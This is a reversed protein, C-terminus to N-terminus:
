STIKSLEDFAENSLEIASDKVEYWNSPTQLSNNILLLLTDDKTRKLYMNTGCYDYYYRQSRVSEIFLVEANLEESSLNINERYGLESKYYYVCIVLEEGKGMKAMKELSTTQLFLKQFIEPNDNRRSTLIYYNANKYSTKSVSFNSSTFINKSSISSEVRFEKQNLIEPHSVTGLYLMFSVLILFYKM